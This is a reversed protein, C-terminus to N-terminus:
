FDYVREIPCMNSALDIVHVLSPPSWSHLLQRPGSSARATRGGAAAARGWRAAVDPGGVQAQATAPAERDGEDDSAATSASVSRRRRRSRRRRAPRRLAGGGDRGALGQGLDRRLLQGAEGDGVPHGPQLQDVVEAAGLDM